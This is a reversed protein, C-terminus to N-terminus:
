VEQKRSTEILQLQGDFVFELHTRNGFEDFEFVSEILEDELNKAFVLAQDRRDFTKMKRSEPRNPSYQVIVCVMTLVNNNIEVNVRRSTNFM